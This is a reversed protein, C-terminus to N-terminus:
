KTEQTKEKQELLWREYRALRAADVEDNSSLGVIGNRRLAVRKGGGLTWHAGLDEDLLWKEREEHSLFAVVEGACKGTAQWYTRSPGYFRYGYLFKM